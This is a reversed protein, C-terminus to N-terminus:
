VAKSYVHRYICLMAPSINCLASLLSSSTGRLAMDSFEGCCVGPRGDTQGSSRQHRVARAASVCRQRLCIRARSQANAVAFCSGMSTFDHMGCVSSRLACTISVCHIALHLHHSPGFSTGSVAARASHVCCRTAIKRIRALIAFATIDPAHCTLQPPASGKRHTCLSCDQSVRLRTLCQEYVGLSNWASARIAQGVFFRLTCRWLSERGYM